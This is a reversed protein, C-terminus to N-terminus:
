GTGPNRPSGELRVGTAPSFCSMSLRYFLMSLFGGGWILCTTGILSPFDVMYVQLNNYPFARAYKLLFVVTHDLFCKLGVKWVFYADLALLTSLFVGFLCAEGIVLSRRNQREQWQEWLLFLSLGLVALAGTTQVCFAAFGCLAGAGALRAVTRKEVLVAVAAMAALGSCWHHTADFDTVFATVVFFIGPLYATPGRLVARSIVVSLWTFSLGLLVLGANPVWARAGFLEFLALYVVQIGPTTFQFFDRYIM